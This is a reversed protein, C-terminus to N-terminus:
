YGVDRNKVIGIFFTCLDCDLWDSRKSFKCSFSFPTWIKWWTSSISITVWTLRWQTSSTQVSFKHSCSISMLNIVTLSPYDPQFKILDLSLHDMDVKQYPQSNSLWSKWGPYDHVPSDVKWGGCSIMVMRPYLHHAQPDFIWGSLSNKVISPYQASSSLGINM